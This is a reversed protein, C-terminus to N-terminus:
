QRAGCEYSSFPKIGRAENGTVALGHGFVTAFQYLTRLFRFREKRAVDAEATVTFDVPAEAKRDLYAGLMWHGAIYAANTILV